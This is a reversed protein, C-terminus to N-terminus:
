GREMKNELSFFPLLPLGDVSLHVMWWLLVELTKSHERLLFEYFVVSHIVSFRYRGGGRGGSM